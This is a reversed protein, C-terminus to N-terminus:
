EVQILQWTKPGLILTLYFTFIGGPKILYWAMFIHPPLPPIAGGNKVEASTPTSHDAECM